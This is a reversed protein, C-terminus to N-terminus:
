LSLQEKFEGIQEGTVLYAILIAFSIAVATALVSLFSISLINLEIAM